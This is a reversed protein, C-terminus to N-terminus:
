LSPDCMWMGAAAELDAIQRERTIKLEALMRRLSILSRQADLLDFISSQGTAYTHQMATVIDRERPLLTNEFLDIQRQADHFLSLDGIVRTALDHSAQRRMAETAHLNAEAQRIGADIAQYRVLPVMVSGMLSQTVGGLDTTVNVSFDPWYEQKARRIAVAKAIAEEALAHLEPNNQAALSLLDAGDGPIDRLRPLEAPPDLAADPARDLLANLTALEGPLKAQETALDNRALDLENASTLADQQTTGGTTLRSHTVQDIVRLLDINEQDLRILEATLAYDDYAGLVKYRLEFRAKDFRIGAARANSLAVEASTRLKDPLVINNMPDSGAGLTNMSAATSGNSIMGSYTLMLNTKQTGEQPVQELASRWQWYAQEVDANALLAYTVLEDSTAEKSLPSLERHEIPQRYIVGAKDSSAREQAEGPPHVTCSALGVTLAGWVFTRRIAAHAM